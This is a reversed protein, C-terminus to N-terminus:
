EEAGVLRLHPEVIERLREMAGAGHFLLVFGPVRKEMESAAMALAGIAPGIEDQAADGENEANVMGVKEKKSFPLHRRSLVAGRPYLVYADALPIAKGPWSSFVSHLDIRAIGFHMLAALNRAFASYEDFAPALRYAKRGNDRTTADVIGLEILRHVRRRVTEIREPRLKRFKEIQDKYMGVHVMKEGQKSAFRRLDAIPFGDAVDATKMSLVIRKTIEDELTNEVDAFWTVRTKRETM